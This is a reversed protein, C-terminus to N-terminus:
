SPQRLAGPSHVFVILIDPGPWLAFTRERIPSAPFRVNLEVLRLYLASGSFDNPVDPEPDAPTVAPEAAPAIALLYLRVLLTM